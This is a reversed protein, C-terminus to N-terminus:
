SVNDLIALVMNRCGFNMDTVVGGREQEDWPVRFLVNPVCNNGLKIRIPRFAGPYMNWPGKPHTPYIFVYLSPNAYTYISAPIAKRMPRDHDIKISLGITDDIKALLYPM